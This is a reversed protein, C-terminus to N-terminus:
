IGDFAPQNGTLAAEIPMLWSSAARSSIPQCACRLFTQKVTRFGSALKLPKIPQSAPIFSFKGSVGNGWEGIKLVPICNEEAWQALAAVVDGIPQDTQALWLAKDRLAEPPVELAQNIIYLFVVFAMVSLRKNGNGFAHAISPM